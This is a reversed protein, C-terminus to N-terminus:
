LGHRRRVQAKLDAFVLELELRSLKLAVRAFNRNARLTAIVADFFEDLFDGTLSGGESDCSDYVGDWEVQKLGAIIEEPTPSGRVVYVM